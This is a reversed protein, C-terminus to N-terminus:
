SSQLVLISIFYRVVFCLVIVAEWLPLLLLCFTLLLLVVALGTYFYRVLILVGGGRSGRNRRLMTYGLSDPIIEANYVESTLWSETCMVLDPLWQALMAHFQDLKDQAKISRANINFVKLTAHLLNQHSNTPQEASLDSPRNAAESLSSFSNHTAFSVLDNELVSVSHNQTGCTLCMWSFDPNSTHFNYSDDIVIYEFSDVRMHTSNVCKSECCIDIHRDVFYANPIM